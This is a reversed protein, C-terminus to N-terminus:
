IPLKPFKRKIWIDLALTEGPKLFFLAAFALVYLTDNSSPTWFPAGKTFLMCLSYLLAFAVAPRTLVGAILGIAIAAEGYATLFGFFDKNPIVVSDLISRWWDPTSKQFNIFGVMRDAWDPGDGTLPFKHYAAVAFMIGLTVRLFVVAMKPGSDKVFINNM